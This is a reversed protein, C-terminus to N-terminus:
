PLRGLSTQGQAEMAALAPPTHDVVIDVIAVFYVGKLFYLATGALTHGSITGSFTGSAARDAGALTTDSVNATFTLGPTAAGKQLESTVQAKEQDWQSQAVTASTATAVLVEFVNLTQAGYVCLKAGGSTTEQKSSAYTTGALTSAESQTLVQCPDVATPTGAASPSAKALPSAAPTPSTSVTTSSSACATLALFALSAALGVSKRNM